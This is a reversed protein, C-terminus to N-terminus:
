IPFISFRVTVSKKPNTLKRCTTSLLPWWNKIARSKGEVKALSLVMERDILEIGSVTTDTEIWEDIKGNPMPYIRPDLYTAKPRMSSLLSATLHVASPFVDAGFIVKEMTM